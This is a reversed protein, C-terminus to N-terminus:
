RDTMCNLHYNLAWYDVFAVPRATIDNVNLLNWTQGTGYIPQSANTGNIVPDTYLQDGCASVVSERFTTISNTCAQTCLNTINDATLGAWTYSAAPDILSGSCNLPTAFADACTSSLGAALVDSAQYIQLTSNM